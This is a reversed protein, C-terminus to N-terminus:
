RSQDRGFIRPVRFNEFITQIPAATLREASFTMARSEPISGLSWDFRQDVGRWGLDLFIM